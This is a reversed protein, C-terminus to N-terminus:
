FIVGAAQRRSYDEAYASELTSVALQAYTGAAGKEERKLMLMATVGYIIPWSCSQTIIDTTDDNWAPTPIYKWYDITVDKDETPEESFFIDTGIFQFGKDYDLHILEKYDGPLAYTDTGSVISIAAKARMFWFNYNDQVEKHQQLILTQIFSAEHVPVPAAVIDGYVLGAIAAYIQALTM